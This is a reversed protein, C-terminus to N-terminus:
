EEVKGPGANEQFSVGGLWSEEQLIWGDVPDYSPKGGEPPVWLRFIARDMNRVNFVNAGDFRAGILFANLMDSGRLDTDFFLANKGMSNRLTCYVMRADKFNAAKYYSMSMDAGSFDAGECDALHLNARSLDAKIFKAGRLDCGSLDAARLNSNSFNVESLDKGSLDARELRSGVLFFAKIFDNKTKLPKM